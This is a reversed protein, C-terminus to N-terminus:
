FASGTSGETLRPSSPDVGGVPSYLGAALLDTLTGSTIRRLETAHCYRGAANIAHQIETLWKPGLPRDSGLILVTGRQALGIVGYNRAVHEPVVHAAAPDVLQGDAWVPTRGKLEREGDVLTKFLTFEALPASERALVLHWGITESAQREWRARDNWLHADRLNDVRDACKVLRVWAPARRLGRFYGTDRRARTEAPVHEPLAPRTLLWVAEAVTRDAAREIQAALDAQRDLPCMQLVDHLLATQLPHLGAAEWECALICAVRVPHVVYPIPPADGAAQQWQSAHARLALRFAAELAERDSPAAHRSLRAWQQHPDLLATADSLLPHIPLM